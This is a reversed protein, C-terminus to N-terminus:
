DIEVFKLVVAKGLEILDGNHLPEKVEVNEVEIKEEGRFIRTRNGSLRSGSYEVQLYFGVNDSYGIRAHARSVYKNVDLNNVDDIAIHNQRYGGEIDPFEGRGINYYSRRENKLAESSLEYQSQLLSGKSGYITISAKKIVQQIENVDLVEQIYVELAPIKVDVKRGETEPKGQRLEVKNFVYGREISWYDQLDQEFGSFSNFTTKDTDFWIVLHKHECSEPESLYLSDLLQLTLKKIIQRADIADQSRKREEISQPEHSTISGTDGKSPNETEGLLLQGIKKFLSM